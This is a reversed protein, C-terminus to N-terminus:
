GGFRHMYLSRVADARFIEGPLNEYAELLWPYEDAVFKRNDDNTWLVWEWDPHQLRWSSSWRVFKRPLKTSSWSQHIIKPITGNVVEYPRSRLERPTTARAGQVHLDRADYNARYVYLALNFTLAVAGCLAVISLWATGERRRLPVYTWM